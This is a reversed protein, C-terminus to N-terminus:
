ISLSSFIVNIRVFVIVTNQYHFWSISEFAETILLNVLSIIDIQRLRRMTRLFGDHYYIFHFNEM